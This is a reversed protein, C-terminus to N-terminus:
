SIAVTALNNGKFIFPGCRGTSLFGAEESAMPLLYQILKETSKQTRKVPFNPNLDQISTISAEPLCLCASGQAKISVCGLRSSTDGFGLHLRCFPETTGM